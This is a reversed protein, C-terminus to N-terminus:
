KNDMVRPFLPPNKYAMHVGCFARTNSNAPLELELWYYWYITSFTIDEISFEEFYTGIANEDLTFERVLQKELDDYYRRYLRVHIVDNYYNSSPVRYTFSITSGKVNHPVVVPISWRKHLSGTYNSWLCGNGNHEYTLDTDHPIANIGVANIYGYANANIQYNTDPKSLDKGNFDANELDSVVISNDTSITMPYLPPKKYEIQVACFKRVDATPLEFQLWYIWSNTNFTLDQISFMKYHDGETQEDLSFSRVLYTELNAYYRKYLSVEISGQGSTNPDVRYTFYIYGGIANDPLNVPITWIKRVGGDNSSGLCIGDSYFRLQSNYPVFNKSIVNLFEWSNTNIQNEINPKSPDVEIFDTSEIDSIINSEETAPKEQIIMKAQATQSTYSTILMFAILILSIFLFQKTKM